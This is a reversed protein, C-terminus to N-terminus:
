KGRKRHRRKAAKKKQAPPKGTQMAARVFAEFEVVAGNREKPEPKQKSEPMDQSYESDAPIPRGDSLRLVGARKGQGTM